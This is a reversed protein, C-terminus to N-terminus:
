PNIVDVKLLTFRIDNAIGTIIRAEVTIDATIDVTWDGETSIAIFSLARSVLYNYRINTSSQVVGEIRMWIPGSATGAAAAITGGGGILDIQKSGSATIFNAMCLIRISGGPAPITNAPITVLGITEPNSGSNNVSNVDTFTFAKNPMDDATTCNIIEAGRLGSAKDILMSKLCLRKNAKLVGYRSQWETIIDTPTSLDTGEDFTIVPSYMSPNTFYQGIERQNTVQLLLKTGAPVTTPSSGGSSPSVVFVGDFDTIKDGDDDVLNDPTGPGIGTAIITMTGPTVEVFDISMGDPETSSVFSPIVAEDILALNVNRQIFLNLAAPNTGAEDVWTQRQINTLARWLSSIFGFEGRRLQQYNTQPNRPTVRTRIQFGGYSDQFVSGALKGTIEEILAGFSVRAM